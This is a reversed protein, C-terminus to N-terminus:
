EINVYFEDNTIDPAPLDADWALIRDDTYWSRLIGGAVSNDRQPVAMVSFDWDPHAAGELTSGFPYEDCQEAPPAPPVPLGTDLYLAAQPGRKYCAGDKHEENARAQGAHVDGLIRHLGPADANGPDYKGPIRKDRPPPTGDPVLRPWTDNPRDQATAIHLAVSGHDSGVQYNLHPIVEAFVCAEPYQTAGHAMYTASDCRVLRSASNGPDSVGYGLAEFELYFRNYSIVDRGVGSRAFNYVDWYFWNTNNDWTVFPMIVPGRTANCVEFDEVCNVIFSLPLYPAIFVEEWGIVWNYDISDEQVRAFTRIRRAQDDGQGVLEYTFETNGMPIRRGFVIRYFNVQTEFRKCYVFRNLIRGFEDEADGNMCQDLAAQDPQDGIAPAVKTSPGTAASPAPKAPGTHEAGMQRARQGAARLSLPAKHPTVAAVKAPRVAAQTPVGPTKLQGAERKKGEAVLRQYEADTITVDISTQETDNQQEAAPAPVPEASAPGAVGLAETAVLAGIM